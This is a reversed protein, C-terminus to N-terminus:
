KIGRLKESTNKIAETSRALLEQISTGQGFQTVALTKQNAIITIQNTLILHEIDTM